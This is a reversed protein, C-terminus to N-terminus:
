KAAPGFAEAAPIDLAEEIREDSWRSRMEM